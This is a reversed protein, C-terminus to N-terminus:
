LIGYSWNDWWEKFCYSLCTNLIFSIKCTVAHSLVACILEHSRHSCLDHSYLIKIVVHSQSRVVYPQTQLHYEELEEGKTNVNRKEEQRCTIHEHHWKLLARSDSVEAWTHTVYSFSISIELISHDLKNIHKTGSGNKVKPTGEGLERKGGLCCVTIVRQSGSLTHYHANMIM